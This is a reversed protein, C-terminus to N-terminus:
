FCIMGQNFPELFLNIDNYNDWDTKEFNEYESKKSQTSDLIDTLSKPIRLAQSIMDYTSNWRTEVDMVVKIEPEKHHSQSRKLQQAIAAGCHCKNCVYRLKKILKSIEEVKLGMQVALNIIHAACRVHILKELKPTLKLHKIGAVM